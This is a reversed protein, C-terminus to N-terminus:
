QSAVKSTAQVSPQRHYLAPSFPKAREKVVTNRAGLFIGACSEDLTDSQPRSDTKRQADLCLKAARLGSYDGWLAEEGGLSAEPQVATNRESRRSESFAFEM